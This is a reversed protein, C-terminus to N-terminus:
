KRAYEVFVRYEGRIAGQNAFPYLVFPQEKEGALQSNAASSAFLPEKSRVHGMVRLAPGLLGEDTPEERVSEGPRAPDIHLVVDEPYMGHSWYFKVPDAQAQQFYAYVLPGRTLALAHDNAQCTVPFPLSLEIIDETQWEREIVVFDGAQAPAPEDGGVRVTAGAAYPPIRLHLAFRAAREPRVHIIGKGDSPFNTEQRLTVAPLEPPRLTAQSETYILVAPNGDRLGYLYTPMRGAIRAGAANCCNPGYPEQAQGNLPTMYSWNSGDALQAALFHNFLDREIEAAYRAEGTWRLAQDLLLIWTHQPCVEIDNRPHYFRRPVYREGSSMGGTLFLWEAAIRDVCGLVVDRYESKGTTNYLAALGLLTMHFTHAHMNERLEYLEKEGAAFQKMSTYDCTHVSEPYAALWEDWKLLTREGWEVFRADGTRQGLLVIPELILTGEGGDHGNGPYRGALPFQGPDPGWTRIIYEGLRRATELAVQSELLDACVLLGHLVYYMEYLEMGRVPNRHFRPTIGLYGDEEQSQALREILEHVRALLEHDDAILATYASADLWKGIQEGLWFWDDYTKTWHFITHTRREHLRIFEESLLPDKLRKERNAHFRRGLFGGVFDFARPEIPQVTTAM